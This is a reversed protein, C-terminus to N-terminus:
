ERGRGPSPRSRARVPAPGPGCRDRTRPGAFRRPVYLTRRVRHWPRGLARQSRVVVLERSTLALMCAGSGTCSRWRACVGHDAPVLLFAELGKGRRASPMAPVPSPQGAARVRVRRTWADASAEGDGSYRVALREAHGTVVLQRRPGDVLSETAAIDSIAVQVRVGPASLARVWLGVAREGIGAVQLPMYLCRYRLRDLLWAAPPIVLIDDAGLRGARAYLDGYAEDPLLGRGAPGQAARPQQGVNLLPLLDRDVVHEWNEATLQGM